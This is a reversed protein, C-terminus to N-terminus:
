AAQFKVLQSGPGTAHLSALMCVVGAPDGQLQLCALGLTPLSAPATEHQACGHPTEDHQCAAQAMGSWAHGGSAETVTPAQHAGVSVACAVSVAASWARYLLLLM